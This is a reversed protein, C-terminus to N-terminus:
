FPINEEKIVDIAVQLKEVRQNAKYWADRLPKIAEENQKEAVGKATWAAEAMTKAEALEQEIQQLTKM